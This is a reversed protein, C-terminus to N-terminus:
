GAKKRKKFIVKIDLNYKLGLEYIDKFYSKLLVLNERRWITMYYQFYNMNYDNNTGINPSMVKFVEEMAKYVKEYETFAVRCLLHPLYFGEFDKFMNDKFYDHITEICIDDLKHINFYNRLNIDNLEHPFNRQILIASNQNDVEDNLSKEWIDEQLM